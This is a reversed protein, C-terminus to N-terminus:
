PQAINVNDHNYRNIIALNDHYRYYHLVKTICMHVISTVILTYM